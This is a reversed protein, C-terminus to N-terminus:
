EKHGKQVITPFWLVLGVCLGKVHSLLSEPEADWVSPLDTKDPEPASEPLHWAFGAGVREAWNECTEAHMSSM